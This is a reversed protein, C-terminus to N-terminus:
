SLELRAFVRFATEPRCVRTSPFILGFIGTVSLSLCYVLHNFSSYISKPKIKLTIVFYIFFYLSPSSSSKGPSVVRCPVITRCCCAANTNKAVRSPTDCILVTVHFRYAIIITINRSGLSESIVLTISRNVSEEDDSLVIAELPRILTAV